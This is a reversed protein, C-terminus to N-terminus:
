RSSSSPMKTRAAALEGRNRVKKGLTDQPYGEVLGGGDAAILDLTGRLAAAAL